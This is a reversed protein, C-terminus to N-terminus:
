KKRNHWLYVPLGSLVLALSIGINLMPSHCIIWMCFGGGLISILGYIPQKKAFLKLFAMMCAFYVFLFATVSVDIVLNVQSILNDSLTTFLLLITGTLSILLSIYPAGYKNTKGCFAPFLGDKAAVCAIQGSTLIWANLTGICALAIIVAAYTDINDGFIRKAADVYPANSTLLTEQPVLGLVGVCNIIYLCAVMITGFLVAKPITAGPNHVVGANATASELGIFGWFTLLATQNIIDSLPLSKANIPEFHDINFYMLGGIPIIILPLCKLLTLVLEIRGVLPAGYINIITLTSIITIELILNYTQSMHGLVPTLYSVSAIAVAINSTWAILWYGWGVFFAATKGFAENVYVHPGGAKPIHTCLQAFILALLIAGGASALWGTLGISGFASLAAPLFLIGVGVQSGIVISAISLFGMKQSM